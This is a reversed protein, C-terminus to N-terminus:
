STDWVLRSARHKGAIAQYMGEWSDILYTTFLALIKEWLRKKCKEKKLAAQFYSCLLEQAQDIFFALMMLMAFITCLHKQGHGYSHELNYDQNKLTNFTENEIKWKARGAKMLKYVNNRTIKIGTIWAFSRTTGTRLNKEQYKFFNVKLDRHSDNLPVENIFEFSHLLGDKEFEYKDLDCGKIFDYLSKNGDQKAVIIFNMNAKLITEIYPANAGIADATVVVKLHPHERRFDSFFRKSANLECDNKLAGDEKLIPEPCFPIVTSKDPHVIAGEFLQHYYSVTGNSHKKNCCNPCSINGSAYHGTGDVALIYGEELYEYEELAKNRQILSFVSKFAHRVERPDVPDLRERMYTDCPVNQIQYLIHLNHEITEERRRQDFQLLSSCKLGFVDLGSMLCDVINIRPKNAKAVPYSVKSFSERAKSLLRKIWPIKPSESDLTLIQPAKVPAKIPNAETTM